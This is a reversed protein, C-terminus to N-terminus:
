LKFPKNTKFNIQIGINLGLRSFALGIGITFSILNGKM